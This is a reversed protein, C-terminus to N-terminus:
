TAFMYIVNFGMMVIPFFIIAIKNTKKKLETSEHTFKLKVINCQTSKCHVKIKEGIINTSDTTNTSNTSNSRNINNTSNISNTRLKLPIVTLVTNFTVVTPAVNKKRFGLCFDKYSHAFDLIVHYMIIAFMNVLYWLFWVDIFKFYPTRPLSTSISSMLFVLVLLCDVSGMFRDNFYELKIFLTSYGLFWLLFIPIFTNIIDYIYIRNMVISVIFRTEKGNNTTNANMAGIYFQHIKEEGNYVIPPDDEELSMSNYRLQIMKLIFHCEQKDFPYRVLTFVCNYEIRFRQSMEMSNEAGDYLFEEYKEYGKLRIPDSTPFVFVRRIDARHIKGIVANEHVVNDLPLWLQDVIEPSVPYKKNRDLNAFVLRSDNWKMKLEITIGALMTVTDIMDVHLINIQTRILLPQSSIQQINEPAQIKNYSEPIRIPFCNEEDSGDNCDNTRDCRKNMSICRGSNCTFESGFECLSLTFFRDEPGPNSCRRNYWTWDQRGIPHGQSELSISSIGEMESKWSGNHYMISSDKYGTYGDIQYSSNISFYYNYDYPSYYKCFDGKWSFVPVKEFMCITCLQLNNCGTVDRFSWYGDTQMFTCGLNPYFPTLLSWHVYSPEAVITDDDAIYWKEIDIDSQQFGLWVARGKQRISQFNLCHSGHNRLISMIFNNEEISNPTAIRGGHVACLTKANDLTEEQPFFVYYHHKQKCFFTPDIGDKVKVKNILYNEKEWNVINGKNTAKCQAINRITKDDLLHDWINLESLEGNFMQSIEYNGKVSDQEQGIILAKPLQENTILPEGIIPQSEDKVTGVFEGNYYFTNNGSFSSYKWCFHNWTRHLYKPIKVFVETKGDLWGLINIHRERTSPTGRHYFQTCSISLDNASTQHCYGWVATYDTAFYRLKEWICSTFEQMPPIDGLYEAWQELSLEGSSQFNLIFTAFGDSVLTLLVLFHFYIM